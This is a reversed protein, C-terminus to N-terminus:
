SKSLRFTGSNDRSSQQQLEGHPTISIVRRTDGIRIKITRPHKRRYLDGYKRFVRLMEEFQSENMRGLQSTSLKPYTVLTVSTAEALQYFRRAMRRLRPATSSRSSDAVVKLCERAQKVEVPDTSTRIKKELQDIACGLHLYMLNRLLRAMDAKHEARGVETLISKIGKVSMYDVNLPFEAPSGLMNYEGTATGLPLGGLIDYHHRENADVESLFASRCLAREDDTQDEEEVQAPEVASQDIEAQGGEDVVAITSLADDIADDNSLPVDSSGEECSGDPEGNSADRAVTEDVASGDDGSSQGSESAEAAPEERSTEVVVSVECTPVHQVTSSVPAPGESVSASATADYSEEEMQFMHSDTDEVIVRSDEVRRRKERSTPKEPLALRRRNGGTSTQAQETSSSEEACAVSTARSTPRRSMTRKLDNVRTTVLASLSRAAGLRERHNSNLWPEGQERDSALKSWFFALFEDVDPVMALTGRVIIGYYKMRTVKQEMLADYSSPM